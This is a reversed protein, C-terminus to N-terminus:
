RSFKRTWGIYIYKRTTYVVLFIFIFSLFPALNAIPYATRFRSLLVSDCVSPVLTPKISLMRYLLARRSFKQGKISYILYEPRSYCTTSADTMDRTLHLTNHLTWKWPKTNDLFLPPNDEGDIFTGRRCEFHSRRSTRASDIRRTKRTEVYRQSASYKFTTASMFMKESCM